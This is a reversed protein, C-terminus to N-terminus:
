TIYDKLMTDVSAAVALFQKRANFEWFPDGVGAQELTPVNRLM